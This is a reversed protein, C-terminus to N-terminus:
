MVSHALQRLEPTKIASYRNWNDSVVPGFWLGIPLLKFSLVIADM